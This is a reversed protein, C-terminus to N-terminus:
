EPHTQMGAGVVVGYSDLGIGWSATGSQFRVLYQDWGKSDIGRFEISRLVGLPKMEAQLRSLLARTGAALQPSLEGYNPKGSEIGLILERLAAESGPTAAQAHVRAQIESSVAQLRGPSVRPAETVAGNQRLVLGTVHGASDTVFRIEADVKGFRFERGSTRTLPWPKGGLHSATLQGNRLGIELVTITSTEYRGVYRSLDSSEVTGAIAALAPRITPPSILVVMAAVGISLLTCAAASARWGRIRPTSM